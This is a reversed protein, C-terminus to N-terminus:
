CCTGRCYAPGYGGPGLRCICCIERDDDMSQGPAGKKFKVRVTLKLEVHGGSEAAARVAAVPHESLAHDLAEELLFALDEKPLSTRMTLCEKPRRGSEGVRELVPVVGTPEHVFGPM